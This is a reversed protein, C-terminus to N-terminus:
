NNYRKAIYDGVLILFMSLLLGFLASIVLMIKKKPKYISIPEVAPDIVKFAYQEQVEALMLKKTQEEILSHFISRIELSPIDILKENLYKINKSAEEIAEAKMWLNIDEVILDLWEKALKPNVFDLTIEVLGTSPNTSVTLMEKFAWYVDWLTPERTVRRFTWSGEDFIKTDIITEESSRDFGKGALLPILINHKEVFANIFTRSELTSLAIQTMSVANSSLNIGAISALGGLQGAMGQIGSQEHSTPSLLVQSRYIEPQFYLYIWTGIVSIVMIFLIVIKQKWFLALVMPVSIEDNKNMIM